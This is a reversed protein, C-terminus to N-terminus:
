INSLILDQQVSAEQLKLICSVLFKLNFKEANVSPFRNPDTAVFTTGLIGGVERDIVTWIDLIDKVLKQEVNPRIRTKKFESIQSSLNIKDCESILLNKATAIEDKTCFDVLILNLNTRDLKDFQASLFCLIESVSYNQM